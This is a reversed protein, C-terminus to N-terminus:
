KLLKKILMYKSVEIMLEHQTEAEITVTNRSPSFHRSHCYNEWIGKDGCMYQIQGDIVKRYIIDAEKNYWYQVTV